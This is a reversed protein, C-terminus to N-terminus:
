TTDLASIYVPKSRLAEQEKQPVNIFTAVVTGPLSKQVRPLFGLKGYNKLNSLLPSRTDMWTMATFHGHEALAHEFVALLAAEQGKPCVLGEFTTFRLNDPKSLRGFVPLHPVINKNMWGSIGPIFDIIWRVANVQAGAIMEGEKKYVYTNDNHFIWQFNVLSHNKYQSDLKELYRSKDESTIKQVHPNKKPFFRSFFLTQFRGIRSFRFTESVKMSRINELEIFGYFIAREKIHSLYHTEAYSMLSTGIGHGRKGPAVSFYRIYYGTYTRDQFFIPRRCFVATGVAKQNERLVLFDPQHLDAIREEMNCHRYRLGGQTGYRTQLILEVVDPKAESELSFQLDRLTRQMSPITKSESFCTL